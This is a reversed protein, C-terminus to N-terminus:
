WYANFPQKNFCLVMDGMDYDPGWDWGAGVHAPADIEPIIRVGRIQAYRVLERVEEPSYVKQPSYAGYYAMLPERNSVMPFSPSDTIHWHLVNLKNYSLAKVLRKLMNVGFYNRSTDLLVGRHPFLPADEVFAERLVVLSDGFDDWVILQTLTEVAHRAGFYTAASISATVISDETKVVLTYSEDTKMSLPEHVMSEITVEINLRNTETELFIGNTREMKHVVDLFISALEDLM